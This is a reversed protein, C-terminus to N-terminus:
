EVPHCTTGAIILATLRGAPTSYEIKPNGAPALLREPLPAVMAADVAQVSSADM